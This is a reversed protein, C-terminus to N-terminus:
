SSVGVSDPQRLAGNGAHLEAPTEQPGSNVAEWTHTLAFVGPVPREESIVFRIRPIVDLALGDGESVSIRLGFVNPEILMTDIKLDVYGDGELDALQVKDHKTNFVTALFDDAAWMLEVVFTPKEIRRTTKYAIRVTMPQGSGITETINGKSDHLTIGKLKIGTPGRDKYQEATRKDQENKIRDSVTQYYKELVKQTQGHMQMEGKYLMVTQECLNRVENLNHSVLIMTVGNKRMAEMRAHCRSRFEMDGVALVEDVLLVDPEIYAAVAFGLRVAMGSSYRKVPTDIFEGVGSFEVIDAFKAQLEKRTMGLIRGNLFVNERGTLDPHFGAGVEILASLRGKVSFNGSDPRLIGSLLKLTTSKGSGNPGIIGMSEGRKLQFSVDQVAWFQKGELATADFAKKGRFLKKAMAPLFDRLSTHQEGRSFKKYIHDFTIVPESM